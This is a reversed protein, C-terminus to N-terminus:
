SQKVRINTMEVLLEDILGCGGIWSWRDIQNLYCKNQGGKQLNM